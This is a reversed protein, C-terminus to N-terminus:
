LYITQNQKPGACVTQGESCMVRGALLLGCTQISDVNSLLPLDACDTDLM